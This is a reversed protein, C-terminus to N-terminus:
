KKKTGTSESFRLLYGDPDQVLFEKCGLLVNGKRYWNEKPESFLDYKHKELRKLLPKISKVELQFNIGRGFPKELKATAWNDNNQKNKQELMLQSGQYSIFFFGSEIRSYEVKFGLLDVYFELSKKIDSVSLEPVLKNFRM